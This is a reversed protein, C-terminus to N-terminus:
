FLALRKMSFGLWIIFIFPYYDRIISKFRIIGIIAAILISYNL